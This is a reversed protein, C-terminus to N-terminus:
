RNVTNKLIQDWREPFSKMVDVHSRLALFQEDLLACREVFSMSKLQKLKSCLEEKSSVYFFDNKFMEKKPDNDIDVFMITRNFVAEYFRTTWITGENFKDSIYVTALSRNIERNLVKTDIPGLFNPAWKGEFAAGKESINQFCRSWEKYINKENWKGYIDVKFDNSGFCYNLGFYYELFKKNRKGSRMNGYYILDRDLEESINFQLNEKKMAYMHFPFYEYSGFGNVDQKWHTKFKEIGHTQTLCHIRKPNFEYWDPNIDKYNGKNQAGRIWEAVNSLPIATDTVCFLTPGNYKSLLEYTVLSPESIQGGYANFPGNFVIMADWMTSAEMANEWSVCTVGEPADKHYRDITVVEVQYGKSLLEKIPETIEYLIVGTEKGKWKINYCAKLIGVKM